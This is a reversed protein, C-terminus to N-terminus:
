PRQEDPVDGFTENKVSSKASSTKLSTEFDGKLESKSNKLDM